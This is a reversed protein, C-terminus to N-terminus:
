SKPSSCPRKTALGNMSHSRTPWITPGSIARPTPSRVAESVCYCQRAHAGGEPRRQSGRPQCGVPREKTKRQGSNEHSGGIIEVARDGPSLKDYVRRLAASRPRDGSRGLANVYLNFQRDVAERRGQAHFVHMAEEHAPECLPDIALAKQCHALAASYDQRERHIRAADRQVNFYMERLWYRKSWCWDRESNDAYEAPIDEFLDGTYLRDAAM